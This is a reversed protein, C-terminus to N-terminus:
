EEEDEINVYVLNVTLVGQMEQLQTAIDASTDVNEAEITIVIKTDVIEHVEVGDFHLIANAVDKTKDAQTNVVLSSIAM